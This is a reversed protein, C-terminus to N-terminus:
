KTSDASHVHMVSLRSALLEKVDLEGKGDKDLRNFEAEMFNMWEQRSVKGNQDADMLLLLDKVHENAVALKDQPQSALTKQAFASVMFAGIAITTSLLLVTTLLNRRGM